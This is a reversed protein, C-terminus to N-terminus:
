RRKKLRHPRDAVPLEPDKPNWHPAIRIPKRLSGRPGCVQMRGHGRTLWRVRPASRREGALYEKVHERCDVTVVRSLRYVDPDNLSKGITSGKAKPRVIGERNDMEIEASVVLHSVADRVRDLATENERSPRPRDDSWDPMPFTLRGSVVYENHRGRVVFGRGLQGGVAAPTEVLSRPEPDDADLNIVQIVDFSTPRGDIVVQLVDHPIEIVYASWPSYQKVLDPEDGANTSIFEDAQMRDLLLRPFGNLSWAVLWAFDRADGAGSFFRQRLALAAPHASHAIGWAKARRAWLFPHEDAQPAIAELLVRGLAKTRELDFM